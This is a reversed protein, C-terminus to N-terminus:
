RGFLCTSTYHFGANGVNLPIGADCCLRTCIGHLCFGATPFIKVDVLYRDRRSGYFRICNCVACRRWLESVRGGGV